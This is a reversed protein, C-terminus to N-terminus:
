VGSMEVVTFPLKAADEVAMYRHWYEGSWHFGNAKVVDREEFTTQAIFTAKPRSARVLAEELRRDIDDVAEFLRVLLLCDHISRHASTVAVGHALALRILSGSGAKGLGDRDIMPWLVDELTCIWPRDLMPLVEGGLAHETFKRDFPASHAVIAQAKEAMANVMAWGIERDMQAIDAAELACASIGNFPEAPNGVNPPTRPFLSSYCELHRRSKINWLIAGVEIVEAEPPELGTTEVDFILVNALRAQSKNVVRTTM